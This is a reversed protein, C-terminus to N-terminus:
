FCATSSTERIYELIDERYVNNDDVMLEIDMVIAKEGNSRSEWASIWAREAHTMNVLEGFSMPAVIDFAKGLIRIDTESFVRENPDRKASIYKIKEVQNIDLAEDIVCILDDDLYSEKRNILDLAISPVPGYEMAKYIDGFIPRGYSNIHLKDALFVTKVVHYQDIGPQRKAIWVLGEVIKQSNKRYQVSM